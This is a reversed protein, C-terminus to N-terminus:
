QPPTRWKRALVQPMLFGGALGIVVVVYGLLQPAEIAGRAMLIGLLVVAFGLTRVLQIAMWRNRATRDSVPDAM